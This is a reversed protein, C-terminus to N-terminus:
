TTKAIADKLRRRALRKYALRRTADSISASSEVGFWTDYFELEDALWNLATLACQTLATERASGAEEVVGSWVHRVAEHHEKLTPASLLRVREFGVQSLKVNRDRRGDLSYARSAYLGTDFTPGQHGHAGCGCWFRTATGRYPTHTVSYATRDHYRDKRSSMVSIGDRPKNVKQHQVFLVDEGTQPHQRVFLIRQRKASHHMSPYWYFDQRQVIGFPQLRLSRDDGYHYNGIPEPAACLIRIEPKERLVTGILPGIQEQNTVAMMPFEYGGLLALGALQELNAWHVAKRPDQPAAGEHHAGLLLYKEFEILRTRIGPDTAATKSLVDMLTAGWPEDLLLTLKHRDTAM